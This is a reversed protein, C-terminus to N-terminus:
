RYCSIERFGNCGKGFCLKQNGIAVTAAIDKEITYHHAKTFGLRRCFSFAARRGCGNRGDYCWDVRYHKYRPYYYHKLRYHYEKPPKHSLHKICNIVKFGNCRWSMCKLDNTRSSTLCKPLFVSMGVNRAILQQSAKEYGLMRCYRDAVVKGCTCGDPLCYNLPSGHFTPQWFSRTSIEENSAAYLGKAAVIIFIFICLSYSLSFGLIKNLRYRFSMM